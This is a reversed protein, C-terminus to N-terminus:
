GRRARRGRRATRLMAEAVAQPAPRYSGSSVARSLEHLREAPPAPAQRARGGAAARLLQPLVDM